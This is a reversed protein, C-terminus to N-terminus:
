KRVKIKNTLTKKVFFKQRIIVGIVFILLILGAVLHIFYAKKPNDSAGQTNVQQTTEKAVRIDYTLTFPTFKSAQLPKGTIKLIYVDKQPFTYSVSTSTLTPNTNNQFLPQSHIEKGSQYITITCNCDQPKFKNEKDKFEFFFDSQEGATPDDDPSIHIVAGVSGNTELVHAQVKSSFIVFSVVLLLLITSFKYIAM